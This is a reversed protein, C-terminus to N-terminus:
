FSGSLYFNLRGKDSDAHPNNDLPKAYSLGATLQNSLQARAGIEASALRISDGVAPKGIGVNVGLYPQVSSDGAFGLAPGSVEIGTYAGSPASTVGSHYSSGRGPGGLAFQSNSPTGDTGVQAGGKLSIGSGRLEPWYRGLEFNGSVTTFTPKVTGQLPLLETSRSAHLGQELQGDARVDLNGVRGSYLLNASLSQYAVKDSAAFAGLRSETAVHNLRLEGTLSNALYTQAVGSLKLTSGTMDLPNLQGGSRYLAVSSEVGYAGWPTPKMVTLGGGHYYGGESNSDKALSSVGSVKYEFGGLVGTVAGVGLVGGSYRPGLNTVSASFVPRVSADEQGYALVEAQGTKTMGRPNIRLDLLEGNARAARRMAKAKWGDMDDDGLVEAQSIYGAYPGSVTSTGEVIQITDGDAVAEVTYYGRARYLGAVARALTSGDGARLGRLANSIEPTTLLTNGKLKFDQAVPAPAPQAAAVQVPPMVLVYAVEASQVTKIVKGRKDKVERTVPREVRQLQAGPYQAALAAALENELGGAPAAPEPAPKTVPKGRAPAPAAIVPQAPPTPADDISILYPM